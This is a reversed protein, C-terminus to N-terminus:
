VLGKIKSYSSKTENDTVVSITGTTESLSLRYVQGTTRYDFLYSKTGGVTTNTPEPYLGSIYEFTPKQRDLFLPSQGKKTKTRKRISLDPKDVSKLRNGVISYQGEIDISTLITM